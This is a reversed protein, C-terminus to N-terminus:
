QLTFWLGTAANDGYGGMAQLGVTFFAGSTLGPWSSYCTALDLTFSITDGPDAPLDAAPDLM